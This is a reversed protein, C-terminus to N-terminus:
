ARLRPRRPNREGRIAEYITRGVFTVAGLLASAAIALLIEKRAEVIKPEGLEAARAIMEGVFGQVALALAAMGVGIALGKGYRPSRTVYGWAVLSLPGFNYLASGWTARNWTWSREEDTMRERDLMQLTLPIVIGLVMQTVLFAVKM